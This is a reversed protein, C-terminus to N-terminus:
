EFRAGPFVTAMDHILFSTIADQEPDTAMYIGTCLESIRCTISTPGTISPPKNPVTGTQLINITCQDSIAADKLYILGAKTSTTKIPTSCLSITYETNTNLDTFLIRHLGNVNAPLTVSGSTISKYDANFFTLTDAVNAGKLGKGELLTMAGSPAVQSSDTAELATVYLNDSQLNQQVIDFRWVGWLRNLDDTTSNPDPVTAERGDAYQVNPFGNNPQIAYTIDIKNRGTGYGSGGERISFNMIGNSGYLETILISASNVGTESEVVSAPQDKVYNSGRNEVYVQVIKGNSIVGYGSATDNNGQMIKVVVRYSGETGGLLHIRPQAPLLVKAFLKAHAPPHGGRYTENNTVTITNASNTFWHGDMTSTMASKDIPTGFQSSLVPQGVTNFIIHPQVSAGDTKLRDFVLFYDSETTSSAPFWVIQRDSAQIGGRSHWKLWESTDGASYGYKGEIVEAARLFGTKHTFLSTDRWRADAGTWAWQGALVNAYDGPEYPLVINWRASPGYDHAYGQKHTLLTGGNKWLFVSNMADETSRLPWEATSHMLFTADYDDWHSRMYTRGIPGPLILSPMMGSAQPSRPTRLPDGLLVGYFFSNIDYWTTPLRMAWAAADAGNNEGMRSLWTTSAAIMKEIDSDQLSWGAYAQPMHPYYWAGPGAEKHPLSNYILWQAFRKWHEGAQWFDQGTATYWAEIMPFLKYFYSAYVIEEEYVGGNLVEFRTLLGTPGWLARTLIENTMRQSAQDSNSYSVEEGDVTFTIPMELNDGYFAVPHMYQLGASQQTQTPIYPDNQLPWVVTTEILRYIAEKRDEPTLLDYFWDYGTSMATYNDYNTGFFANQHRVFAKYAAVGKQEYAALGHKFVFGNISHSVGAPEEQPLGLLAGLQHLIGYSEVYPGFKPYAVRTSDTQPIASFDISM